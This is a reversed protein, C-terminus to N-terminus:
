QQGGEQPTPAARSNEPRINTFSGRGVAAAEEHDLFGILAAGGALEVGIDDFGRSVVRLVECGTSTADRLLDLPEEETLVVELGAVLDLAEFLVVRFLTALDL